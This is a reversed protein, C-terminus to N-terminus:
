LDERRPLVAIAELDQPSRVTAIDIVLPADLSERDVLEPRFEESIERPADPAAPVVTPPASVGALGVQVHTASISMASPADVQSALLAIQAAFDNVGAKMREALADTQAGKLVEEAVRAHETPLNGRFLAGLIRGRVAMRGSLTGIDETEVEQALKDRSEEDVLLRFTALEDPKSRPPM